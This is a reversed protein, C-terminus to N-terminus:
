TLTSQHNTKSTVLNWNITGWWLSMGFEIISRVPILAIQLGIIKATSLHNILRVGTKLKKIFIHGEEMKNFGGTNGLTDNGFKLAVPLVEQIYREHDVTGEEFVVLLSVGKSYVGLWTLVNKPFKQVERIGGRTDVETRSAAWITENRSNYVGDIDFLKKDSFLLRM